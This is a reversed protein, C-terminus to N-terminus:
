QEQKSEPVNSDKKLVLDILIYTSIGAIALPIANDNFFRVFFGKSTGDTAPVDNVNKYGQQTLENKVNNTKSATEEKIKELRTELPRTNGNNSKKGLNIPWKNPTNKNAKLSPTSKITPKKIGSKAKIPPVKTSKGFRATLSLGEGQVCYNSMSELLNNNSIEQASLFHANSLHVIDSSSSITGASFTKPPTPMQNLYNIYFQDLREAENFIFVAQPYEQIIVFYFVEDPGLGFSSIQNSARLIDIEYAGVLNTDELIGQSAMTDELDRLRQAQTGVECDLALSGQLAFENKALFFEGFVLKQKHQQGPNIETEDSNSDIRDINQVNTGKSNSTGPKCSSGIIYAFIILVLFRSFIRLDM